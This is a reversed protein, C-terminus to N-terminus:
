IQEVIWYEIISNDPLSTAGEQLREGRYQCVLLRDNNAFDINLTIRNFLRPIGWGENNGIREIVTALDQHGIAGIPHSNNIIPEPNGIKRFSLNKNGELMNISFSNVIYLKNM